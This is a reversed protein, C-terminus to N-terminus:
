VCNGKETLNNLADETLETICNTNMNPIPLSRKSNPQPLCNKNLYRTKLYETHSLTDVRKVVNPIKKTCCSDTGAVDRGDQLTTNQGSKKDYYDSYHKVSMDKVVNNPYQSNIWKNRHYISSRNTKVSIGHNGGKFEREHLDYNNYQSKNIVVPYHGCCSGHGRPVNGKMPTQTQYQNSHSRVRRNNNLSFFNNSSIKSYKTNTKRKLAVISM